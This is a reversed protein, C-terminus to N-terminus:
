PNPKPPKSDVTAKMVFGLAAGTITCLLTQAWDSEGKTKILAIACGVAALAILAAAFWELKWRQREKAFEHEVRAQREDWPKTPDSM